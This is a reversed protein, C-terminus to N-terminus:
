WILIDLIYKRFEEFQEPTNNHNGYIKHFIQHLEKCITIGNNIDFRLEPYKAWNYLRHVVLDGGRRGSICCTNNDRLYVEERFERNKPNYNRDKNLQREEKTLDKRWRPHKEGIYLGVLSLRIRECTEESRHSGYNPSKEGRKGYLGHREGKQRCSTCFNSGRVANIKKIVREKSCDDCKVLSKIVSPKEDYTNLFDLCLIM